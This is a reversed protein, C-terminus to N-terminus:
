QPWAASFRTALLRRDWRRLHWAVRWKLRHRCPIHYSGFFGVFTHTHLHGDYWGEYRVRGLGDFVRRIEKM